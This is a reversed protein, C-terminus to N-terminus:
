FSALQALAKAQTSNQGKRGVWKGEFPALLVEWGGEREEEERELAYGVVVWEILCIALKYCESGNWKVKM